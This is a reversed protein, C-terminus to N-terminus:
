WRQRRQDLTWRAYNMVERLRTKRNRHKPDANSAELLSLIREFRKNHRKESRRTKRSMVREGDAQVGDGETAPFRAPRFARGSVLITGYRRKMHLLTVGNFANQADSISGSLAVPPRQTIMATSVTVWPALGIARLVVFPFGSM